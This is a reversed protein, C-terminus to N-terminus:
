RGTLKFGVITMVSEDTVDPYHILMEKRLLEKSAFGDRIADEDTLDGLLLVRTGKLRADISIGGSTARLQIKCRPPFVRVGKRITATKQGLKVKPLYKDDLLLVAPDQYVIVEEQKRLPIGQNDIM